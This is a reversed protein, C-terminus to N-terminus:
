AASPGPDDFGGSEAATRRPQDHLAGRILTLAPKRRTTAAPGALSDRERKASEPQYQVKELLLREEAGESNTLVFAQGEALGLLALGRATTIPLFLGVASTVRDHAIVRTDPDRGDVSFTVRSSMTAVNAPVDERFVVQATEIKRRLIPALSEDNGLGRDRMVELITFDKATLICTETPM